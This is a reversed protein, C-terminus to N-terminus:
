AIDADRMTLLAQVLRAGKEIERLYTYEATSHVDYMGSSLVIGQLGHAAFNNNDSGGLTTTLRDQGGKEGSPALSVGERELRECAALLRRCVPADEPTHYARYNEEARFEVAAGLRAAEEELIGKAEAVQAVAKEHVFSRAEGRVVCSEPVINTAAGGEICGVNFVTDADIHGQTLRAIAKAAAEIAHVGQEPAFGAHAAKGRVTATYTVMTPAQVAARGVDGSMDLIYADRARLKGCDFVQSGRCMVEEAVCLLIEAPRHDAGNEELTRLAELIAVVGTLDDGGLVTAGDSTVKGDEDVVPRKGRGPVVTDMHASLLIPAEGGLTGKGEWRALLNGCNGGIKEGADDEEVSLGIAELRARLADAMEREEFSPADIQVLSLFEKRIRDPRVEINAPTM